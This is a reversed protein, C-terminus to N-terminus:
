RMRKGDTKCTADIDYLVLISRADRLLYPIFFLSGHQAIIRQLKLWAFFEAKVFSHLDSIVKKKNKKWRQRSIPNHNRSEADTPLMIIWAEGSCNMRHASSVKFDSLGISDLAIEPTVYILRYLTIYHLFFSVSSTKGVHAIIAKAWSALPPPAVAFM